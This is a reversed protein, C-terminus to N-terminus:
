SEAELIKQLTHPQNKELRQQYDLPEIGPLAETEDTRAYHRDNKAFLDETVDKCHKDKM